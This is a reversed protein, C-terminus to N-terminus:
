VTSIKSDYIDMESESCTDDQLNLGGNENGPVKTYKQSGNITPLKIGSLIPMKADARRRLCKIGIVMAVLLIVVILLAIAIMVTAKLLSFSVYENPAEDDDVPIPSPISNTWVCIDDNADCDCCPANNTDANCCQECTRSTTNMVFNRECGLCNTPSGSCTSCPAKCASCFSRSDTYFGDPCKSLCSRNPEYYSFTDACKLCTNPVSCEACNPLCQHCTHTSIKTAFGPPCEGVCSANTTLLYYGDSCMTCINAVSCNACNSPCVHCVGNSDGFSGVPCVEVCRNTQLYTGLPCSLCEDMDPGVCEACSTHCHKCSTETKFTTNPCKDICSGEFLLMGQPCSICQSDKTGFCALCSQHCATDLCVRTQNDTVTHEPCSEVCTGDSLLYYDDVCSSCKADDSCNACTAPCRICSSSSINFYHGSDCSRLQRVDVCTGKDTLSYTEDCATCHDSGKGSCKACTVHCVRCELTRHDFYTGDRCSSPSRISCTGDEELSLQGPCSTCNSDTPGVCSLCSHHCHVCTGNTAPYFLDPCKDACVGSELRVAGEQCKICKHDDECEGCFNPCDRCMHANMFTGVPCQEVCEHTSAVRFHKCVDCYEAGANACKGDCQEHCHEPISQVAAPTDSTGYFVLELGDLSAAAGDKTRVIFTWDGAPNEGWSLVTMFPWKHFGDRHFDSRRYPLLTSKTGMPSTLEISVDGRNKSVM